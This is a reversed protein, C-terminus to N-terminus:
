TIAKTKGSESDTGLEFVLRTGENLLPTSLAVWSHVFVDLGGDEPKVLGHGKQASFFKVIGAPM